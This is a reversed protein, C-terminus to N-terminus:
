QGTEKPPHSHFWICPQEQNDFPDHVAQIQRSRGHDAQKDVGSRKVQNRGCYAYQCRGDTMEILIFIGPIESPRLLGGRFGVGRM